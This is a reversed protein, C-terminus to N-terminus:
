HYYYYHNKWFVIRLLEWCKVLNHLLLPSPTLFVIVCINRESEVYNYMLVDVCLWMWQVCEVEREGEWDVCVCVVWVVCVSVCPLDPLYSSILNKSTFLYTKLASRFTDITTANRIHLPLSNWVSPGFYSFACDGKTKCKCIPIKLLCNDTSSRLSQSPSYLYIPLDSLYAPTSSTIANFCLCVIKNSIWARVPLWHLHGLIPTTHVHPPARIVLRVACNQVRQFKGVVSQPLGDLLSNSTLANFYLSLLFFKPRMMLLNTAFQASVESKWSLRKASPLMTCWACLFRSGM